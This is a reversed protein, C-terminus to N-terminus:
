PVYDSNLCKTSQPDLRSHFEGLRRYIAEILLARIYNVIPSIVGVEVKKSVVHYHPASLQFNTFGKMKRRPTLSM